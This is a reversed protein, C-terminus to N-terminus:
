REHLRIVDDVTERRVVARAEGDRCMVIAPRPVVNYNSSLAYCYAGTAATALLDGPAVGDPLLADLALVDGSECHKGVIRVPATAPDAARNALVFEYRAGYLSPRINDSMGGDVAVYTRVGEIAKVTGVTHLTVGARAVLSRGPELTLAVDDPWGALLLHAVESPTVAEPDERTYAVPFGGGLDVEELAAGIAESVMQLLPLVVEEVRTEDELRQSGIHAHLGRVTVGPLKSLRRAADVVQPLPIGFKSDVGGTRIFEHSGAEVGPTVRIWVDRELGLREIRGIEDFSDVILRGVPLGLEEVSKNNGHLVISEPPVGAATAVAHEGATSCLVGLGCEHALRAMAVVPFAKVAFLGRSGPPGLDIAAAFESCAARLADEDYVYLPTGFREALELADCGGVTVRGDDASASPPFLRALEGLGAARSRGPEDATGHDSM